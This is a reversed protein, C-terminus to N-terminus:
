QCAWASVDGSQFLFSDGQGCAPWQALLRKRVAALRTPEAGLEGEVWRIVQWCCCEEDSAGPFEFDFNRFNDWYFGPTEENLTRFRAAAEQLTLEGAIVRLTLDRRTALRRKSLLLQHALDPRM